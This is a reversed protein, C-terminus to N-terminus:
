YPLAESECSTLGSPGPSSMWRHYFLSLDVTNVIGDSNFDANADNSFFVTRLLGLDINDVTCDNNLDCDCINGFGDNDADQQGPNAVMTCNDCVDGIGDGDIDIQSPNYTRPCDDVIDIIGDNDTDEFNIDIYEENSSSQTNDLVGDGDSDILLASTENTNFNFKIESGNSLPIEKFVTNRIQNSALIPIIINIEAVGFDTGTILASYNLNFPLEYIEVEGTSLIKASSIDNFYEGDLMGIRRGEDDTILSDAPCSLRFYGKTEEYLSDFYNKIIDSLHRRLNPMVSSATWWPHWAHFIKYNSYESPVYTDGNVKNFIIRRNQDDPYNPDYIYIFANSDTEVLKYAVVSHGASEENEGKVMSVVVPHDNQIGNKIIDFDNKQNETPYLQEWRLSVFNFLQVIGHSAQFNHIGEAAQEESYQYLNNPLPKLNPYDYYLASTASMGTCNGEHSAIWGWIDNLIFDKVVSPWGIGLEEEISIKLSDYLSMDPTGKYNRFHYNHVGFTFGTTIIVSSPDIKEAFVATLAKDESMVTNLPNDYNCSVGDDWYDFEWGEDASAKLQVETGLDFNYSCITDCVEDSPSITVNGKTQPDLELNLTVQVPPPEIFDLYSSYFSYNNPYVSKSFVAAKQSDGWFVPYFIWPYKSTETSVIEEPQWYGNSLRQSYLRYNYSDSPINCLLLGKNISLSSIKLQYPRGYTPIPQNNILVDGRWQNDILFNSYIEHYSDKTRYYVAIATGDDHLSVDGGRPVFESQIIEPDEWHGNSYRYALLSNESYSAFLVIVDSNNNISLGCVHSPRGVSIDNNWAAGDFILAHPAMSFSDGYYSYYKEIYTCIAHGLDNVALKPYDTDKVANGIFEKEEWSGNKYHRAAMRYRNGDYENFVIIANGNQDIGVDFRSESDSSFLVHDQWNNEKYIAAYCYSGSDPIVIKYAMICQGVSNIDIDVSQLGSSDDEPFDTSIPGSWEKNRYFNVYNKQNAHLLAVGVGSPDYAFSHVYANLDGQIKISPAWEAYVNNFSAELIGLWLFFGILSLFLANKRM